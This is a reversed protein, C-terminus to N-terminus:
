KMLEREENYLNILRESNIKKIDYSTFHNNFTVSYKDDSLNKSVINFTYDGKDISHTYHNPAAGYLKNNKNKNLFKVAENDEDYGFNYHINFGIGAIPTQDLLGLFKTMIDSLLKINKLTPNKTTFDLATANPKIEIDDYIKYIMSQNSFDYQGMFKTEDEFGNFFEAINKLIWEPTFLRRNWHGLVRIGISTPKKM